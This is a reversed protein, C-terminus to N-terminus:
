CQLFECLLNVRSSQARFALSYFRQAAFMATNASFAHFPVVVMTRPDVVTHAGSIMACEVAKDDCHTKVREVPQNNSDSTIKRSYVIIPYEIASPEFNASNDRFVKGGGYTTFPTSWYEVSKLRNNMTTATYEAKKKKKIAM